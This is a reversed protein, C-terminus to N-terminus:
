NGTLHRRRVNGNRHDGSSAAQLARTKEADILTYNLTGVDLDSRQDISSCRSAIVQDNHDTNIFYFLVETVNVYRFPGMHGEGNSQNQGHQPSPTRMSAVTATQTYCLLNTSGAGGDWRLPFVTRTPTPPLSHHSSSSSVARPRVVVFVEQPSINVYPANFASNSSIQSSISDSRSFSDNVAPNVNESVISGIIKQDVFTNHRHPHFSDSPLAPGDQEGVSKPRPPPPIVIKRLRHVSGRHYSNYGAPQSIYESGVGARAYYINVQFIADANQSQFCHLGEGTPCRRGSEFFFVGLIQNFIYNKFISFFFKSCIYHWGASTYGYRRLFQLPWVIIDTKSRELAIDDTSVRLWAHIFKNRRHIYVRFSTLQRDPDSRVNRLFDRHGKKADESICNGMNFACKSYLEVRTVITNRFILHQVM